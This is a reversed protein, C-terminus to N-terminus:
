NKAVPNQSDLFADCFIRHAHSISRLVAIFDLINTVGYTADCFCTKSGTQGTGLSAFSFRRHLQFVAGSKIALSKAVPM